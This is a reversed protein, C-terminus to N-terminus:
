AVWRIIDIVVIAIALMFLLALGIFSVINKVKSPIKWEVYEEGEAHNHNFRRRKVFNTGGEVATVVLAWGDLGPFPLLNFIALNVSILGWFYIYYAFTYQSLITSTQNLIGVIGSMNKIGGTFLMGLGRFVLSSANGFDEFTYRVRTGFDLWVKNTKFSLGTENWVYTDNNKKVSNIEVSYTSLEGYQRVGDKEGLYKNFGVNLVFSTNEYPKYLDAKFNPYYALEYGKKNWEEFAKDNKIEGTTDASFVYIGDEFNTENKNGTPYYGVVYHRDEITLNPDVIYFRGAYLQGEKEFEFYISKDDEPGYFFMRDDDRLGQAYLSSSEKVHAWSTAQMLPFCINSIAFLTLALVANTFVGASLIIAKKWRKIGELSREKPIIVGDELEIDEGYMSVYGGLPVARIAFYTEKGEKRRKLLAPGFGISFEQCYVNFLKAMSLHGLEHLVILVALSIIFLIVTLIWHLAGM